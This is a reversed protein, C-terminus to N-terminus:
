SIREYSLVTLEGHPFHKPNNTILILRNKVATAAILVDATSLTAGKKSYGRKMKGALNGVESTIDCCKLSNMFEDTALEEKDKMGTYVEVINIPCCCLIGGELCVKELLDPVGSKDRLYDIITTTDLM